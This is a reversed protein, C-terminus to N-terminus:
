RGAAGPDTTVVDPEVRALAELSVSSLNQIPRNYCLLGKGRDLGPPRLTCFETTYSLWDGRM